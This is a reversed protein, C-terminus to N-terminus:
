KTHPLKSTFGAGYATLETLAYGEKKGLDWYLKSRFCFLFVAIFWAIAMVYDYWLFMQSNFITGFYYVGISGLGLVGTIQGPNYFEKLKLPFLILHMLVEAFLFLMASLTLFRVSPLILPLVYLLVLFGWNGFMSSLNNCNWKTSDMEASNMLVKMGVLPFGGPYGFEEFFHLFLITISALLCKQVPALPAFIALLACAGALYVSIYHWINVVKKM